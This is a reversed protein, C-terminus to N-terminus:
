FSQVWALILGKAVFRRNGDFRQMYGSIDRTVHVHGGRTMTM